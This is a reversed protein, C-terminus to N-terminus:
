LTGYLFNCSGYFSTRDFGDIMPAAAPQLRREPGRDSRFAAKPPLPVSHDESTIAGM